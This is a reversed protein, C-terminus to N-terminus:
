NGQVGKFIFLEVVLSLDSTVWLHDRARLLRYTMRTQSGHTTQVFESITRSQMDSSWGRRLSQFNDLLKTVDDTAHLKDRVHISIVANQMNFTIILFLSFFFHCLFGIRRLNAWISWGLWLDALINRSSYQHLSQIRNTAKQFGLHFLFHSFVTVCSWMAYKEKSLLHLYMYSDSNTHLLGYTCLSTSLTHHRVWIGTTLSTHHRVWNGPTVRFRHM